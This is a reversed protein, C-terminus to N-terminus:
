KPIDSKIHSEYDADGLQNTKAFIVVIDHYQALRTVINWGVACESGQYPSLEHASILIKLRKM